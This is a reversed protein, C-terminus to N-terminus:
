RVPLDFAVIDSEDRARDFIIERGDVSVDFDGIVFERGLNTLQRERGTRLDVMWFKKYSIDGKMIVLAEDGGLFAERRAGRTLILNRLAHPAGDSSVAKVSFTTGVDAGSYVLFQESPSWIPDISYEKV